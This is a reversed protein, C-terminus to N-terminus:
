MCIIVNVEVCQLCGVLFFFLPTFGSIVGGNSSIESDAAVCNNAASKQISLSVTFDLLFNTNSRRVQPLIPISVLGLIVWFPSLSLRPGVDLCGKTNLLPIFAAPISFPSSKGFCTAHDQRRGRGLFRGVVAAHVVKSHQLLLTVLPFVSTASVLSPLPTWVGEGYGALLQSQLLWGKWSSSGGVGTAHRM